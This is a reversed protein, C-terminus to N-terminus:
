GAAAKQEEVLEDFELFYSLHTLVMPYTKGPSM